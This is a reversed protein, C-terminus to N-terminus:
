TLTVMNNEELIRVVKKKKFNYAKVEWLKATNASLLIGSNTKKFYKIAYFKQFHEILTKLKYTLWNKFYTEFRITKKM